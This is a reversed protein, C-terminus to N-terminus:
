ARRPVAFDGALLYLYAPTYNSFPHAFAGVPGYRVLHDFWPKLFLSLDRPETWWFVSHLYLALAGIAALAVPWSISSSPPRHDM